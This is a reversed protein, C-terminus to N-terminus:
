GLGPRSTFIFKERRYRPFERVELTEAALPVRTAPFGGLLETVKSRLRKQWAEAQKRNTARFTLELPASEYLKRTYLVPDFGAADVKDEFGDLAGTYKAVARVPTKQLM